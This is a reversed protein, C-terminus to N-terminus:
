VRALEFILSLSLTKPKNRERALCEVLGKLENGIRSQDEYHVSWGVKQPVKFVLAATAQNYSLESM